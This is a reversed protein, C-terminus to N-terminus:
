NYWNTQGKYSGFRFTCLGTFPTSLSSTSFSWLSRLSTSVMESPPLM